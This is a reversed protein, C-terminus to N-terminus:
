EMFMKVQHQNTTIMSFTIKNANAKVIAFYSYVVDFLFRTKLNTTPMDYRRWDHLRAKQFSLFSYQKEEFM